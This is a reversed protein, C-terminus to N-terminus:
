KYFIIYDINRDSIKFYSFIKEVKTQDLVGIDIRIEIEEGNNWNEFVIGNKICFKKVESFKEKQLIAYM